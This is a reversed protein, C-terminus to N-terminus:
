ILTVFNHHLLGFFNRSFLCRCAMTSHRSLIAIFLYWITVYNLLSFFVCVTLANGIEAENKYYKATDFMRYGSALAADVATTVKKQGTIKYTGLGIMPMRHGTNLKKVGGILDKLVM